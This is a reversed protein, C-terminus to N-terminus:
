SLPFGALSAVKWEGDEDAMTIAYKEGRAGRYLLFGQDGEVRLAGVDAIAAEKRIPEPVEGSLAEMLAACGKDKLKPSRSALQELSAVISSSVYECAAAWDGAARADLFGHLAAAAAEFDSDTAEAGFEQVSNDGGKTRFQEVGGGSDDHETPPAATGSPKEASGAERETDAEAPRGNSDSAPAEAGQQKQATTGATTDSGSDDGCAALGVALMAAAAVAAMWRVLVAM